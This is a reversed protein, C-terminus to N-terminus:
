AAARATRTILDAHAMAIELAVQCGQQMADLDDASFLGRDMLDQHSEVNLHPDLHYDRGDPSLQAEVDVILEIDGNSLVLQVISNEGDSILFAHSTSHPEKFIESVKAAASDIQSTKFM